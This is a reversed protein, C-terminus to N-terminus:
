LTFSNSSKSKSFPPPSPPIKTIIFMNCCYYQKIIDINGPELDYFIHNDSLLKIGSIFSGNGASPEVILDNDLIKIHKKVSDLCTVVVADKTYFKDITNRILGTMQTTEM